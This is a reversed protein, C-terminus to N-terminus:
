PVPRGTANKVLMLSSIGEKSMTEKTQTLLVGNAYIKKLESDLYAYYQTSAKAFLFSNFDTKLRNLQATAVTDEIQYYPQYYRLISDQEKKIQAETKYIPFDYSATLLGYHWPKGEAFEYRFKGERPFVYLILVIAFLFMLGRILRDDLENYWKKNTKKM